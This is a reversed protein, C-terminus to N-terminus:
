YNWGTYINGVFGANNADMSKVRAAGRKILGMGERANVVATEPIQVGYEACIDIALQNKLFRLWGPPLSITQNLTVNSLAKESLTFLTYAAAPVPYLKVVGLPFDSTYNLFYPTGQTSKTPLAAYQEDGIISLTYDTNGIRVYASIIDVPRSTNFDGGAGITYSAQGGTLTFSETDRAYIFLSDNSLSDLLDNFSDLADQTESATPSEGQSLVGSIRFASKIVDNATTM